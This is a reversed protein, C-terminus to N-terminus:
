TSGSPAGADTDPATDPQTDSPAPVNLVDDAIRSLDEASPLLQRM